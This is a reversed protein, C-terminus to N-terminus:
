CMLPLGVRLQQPIHHALADDDVAIPSTSTTAGGSGCNMSLVFTMSPFLFSADDDIPNQSKSVRESVEDRSLADDQGGSLQPPIMAGDEEVTTSSSSSPLSFTTATTATIDDEVIGAPLPFRNLAALLSKEVPLIMTSLAQYQDYEEDSTLARRLLPRPRSSVLLREADSKNWFQRTWIGDDSTATPLSKSRLLRNTEGDRCSDKIHNELASSSSTTTATPTTMVSSLSKVANKLNEERAAYQVMRRRRRSSAANQGGVFKICLMECILQSINQIVLRFEPHHSLTTGITTRDVSNLLTQYTADSSSLSSSSSSRSSAEYECELLKRKFVAGGDILGELFNDLSEKYAEAFSANSYHLVNMCFSIHPTSV